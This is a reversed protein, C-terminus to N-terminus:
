AIERPFVRYTALSGKQSVSISPYFPNNSPEVKRIVVTSGEKILIPGNESINCLLRVEEGEKFRLYRVDNLAPVSMWPEVKIKNECPIINCYETYYAWFTELHSVLEGPCTTKRLRDIFLKREKPDPYVLAFPIDNKVLAEIRPIDAAVVLYKNGTQYSNFKDLLVSEDELDYSMNLPFFEIDLKEASGDLHKAVLRRGGLGPFVCIIKVTRKNLKFM